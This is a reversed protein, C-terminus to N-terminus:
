KGTSGISGRRGSIGVPPASSGILSDDFPKKGLFLFICFFM